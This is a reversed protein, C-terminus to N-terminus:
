AYNRCADDFFPGHRFELWVTGDQMYGGPVHAQLTDPLPPLDPLPRLASLVSPYGDIVVGVAQEGQGLVLVKRDTEAPFQDMGLLVRLDYLPVLNGRLNVLGVFGPPADPLSTVQPVSLVESGTDPDILLGLEGIRFGYRARTEKRAQGTVALQVGEAPEFQALAATPSLWEVSM